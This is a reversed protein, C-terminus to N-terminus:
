DRRISFVILVLATSRLTRKADVTSDIGRRYERERERV